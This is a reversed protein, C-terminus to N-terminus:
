SHRVADVLSADDRPPDDAPHGRDPASRPATSPPVAARPGSRGATLERWVGPVVHRLYRGLKIFSEGTTRFRYSIPVELYRYGKDLLDLTLVQAYNFDHIIEADAAARRSFARYGTQGDSIRRGAVLSLATTLVVNGFRRHPKMVEIRGKFRSGAVYDAEDALIPGVLAALEEPAYEGDADCFAVASAGREVAAALGVRVAAGLGQNAPLSIVDAGAALAQEATADASGDDVVIVEVECGLVAAPARRVCDAVSAEENYAPMFLVVLPREAGRAGAFPAAASPHPGHRGLATLEAPLLHRRRFRDAHHPGHRGPATWEAATSDSPAVGGARSEDASAAPRARAGLGEDTRRRLATLAPLPVFAAIGGAALAYATKLAHAWLAAVLAAAPDYGFATYAAVAAAEYTGFGGPAIAAIQAVVSVATVGLAEGASIDLGAWHAAQHVLVAELPWAAVSLAVAAGDPPRARPAGAGEPRQPGGLRLWWFVLGLALVAAGVGLLMWGFPGVLSVLVAPAAALGLGLVAFTDVARLTLSSAIAVDADVNARRSVSVVRMAEGLRLPLVHNAGLTLHIGALAHGFGLGPLVRRWAVARLVFACGFAGLALVVTVPASAAQRAAEALAAGDALRVVLAVAVATVVAVIVAAVRRSTLKRIAVALNLFRVM